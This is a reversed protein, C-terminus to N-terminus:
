KQQGAPALYVKGSEQYGVILNRQQENVRLVVVGPVTRNGDADSSNIIGGQSDFVTQVEIGKLVPDSRVTGQNDRGVYAIVDVKSGARVEGGAATPLDVKVGLEYEGQKLAVSSGKASQSATTLYNQRIMSGQSFGIGSAFRQGNELQKIDTLADTPVDSKVRQQVESNTDDLEQYPLIDAKAVLVPVTVRQDALKAQQWKYSVMFVILALVILVLMKTTRNLYRDLLRKM